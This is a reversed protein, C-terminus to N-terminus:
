LWGARKLARRHVVYYVVPRVTFCVGSLAVCAIYSALYVMHLAGTTHLRRACPAYTYQGQVDTYM